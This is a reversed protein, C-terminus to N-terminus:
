ANNFGTYNLNPFNNSVDFFIDSWVYNTMKREIKFKFNKQGPIEKNFSDNINSLPKFEKFQNNKNSIADDKNQWIGSKNDFSCNTNFFFIILIIFIKMM